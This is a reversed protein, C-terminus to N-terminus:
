AGAVASSGYQLSYRHKIPRWLYINSMADSIVELAQSGRSANSIFDDIPLSLHIIEPFDKGTNAGLQTARCILQRHLEISAQPGMGGIIVVQSNM